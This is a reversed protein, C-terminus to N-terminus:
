GAVFGNPGSPPRVRTRGWGVAIGLLLAAPVLWGTGALPALPGPDRRPATARVAAPAGRRWYVDYNGIVTDRQYGPLVRESFGRVEAFYGLYDFRRAGGGGRAGPDPRLVLLLDPTTRVLDAVIERGFAEELPSRASAPRTRVVAPERVQDPYFAVLPWLNPHRLAWQTRAELVLPFSSSINTSLVAVHGQPGVAQVLPLLRALSPDADLRPDHPHAVRLMTAPAVSALVAAVMGAGAALYVRGLQRLPRARCWGFVIIVTIVAFTQAPLFHYRWGKGQVVGVMLMAATAAALV